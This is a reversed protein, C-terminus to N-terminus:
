DHKTVEYEDLNLKHAEGRIEFTWISFAGNKNSDCM